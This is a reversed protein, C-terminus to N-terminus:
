RCPSDDEGAYTGCLGRHFIQSAQLNEIGYLSDDGFACRKKTDTDTHLKNEIEALFVVARWADPQYRTLDFSKLWGIREIFDRLHAPVSYFYDVRVRNEVADLVAAFEVEDVAVVRGRGFGFMDNALGVIRACCECAGSAFAIESSNLEM